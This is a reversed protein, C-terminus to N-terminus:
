VARELCEAGLVRSDYWSLVPSSFTRVSKMVSSNNGLDQPSGFDVNAEIACAEAIRYVVVSIM